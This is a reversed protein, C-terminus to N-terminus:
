NQKGSFLCYLMFNEENAAIQKKHLIAGGEKTSYVACEEQINGILEYDIDYYLPNQMNTENEKFYKLWSEFNPLVKWNNEWYKKSYRRPGNKYLLAM